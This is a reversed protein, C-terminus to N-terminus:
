CSTEKTILVNFFKLREREQSKKAKQMKKRLLEHSIINYSSITSRTVCTYFSSQFGERSLHLGFLSSRTIVSAVALVGFLKCIKFCVFQVSLSEQLAITFSISSFYSRRTFSTINQFVYALRLLPKHFGEWRFTFRYVQSPLLWGEAWVTSLKCM